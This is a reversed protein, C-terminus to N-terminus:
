KKNFSGNGFLSTLEEHRMEADSKQKPEEKAKPPFDWGLEFRKLAKEGAEMEKKRRQMEEYAKAYAPDKMNEQHRLISKAKEREWSNM